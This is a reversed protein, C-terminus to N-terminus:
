EQKTVIRHVVCFVRVIYMYIFTCMCTYVESTDPVKLTSTKRELTTWRQQMDLDTIRMEEVTNM